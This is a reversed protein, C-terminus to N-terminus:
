PAADVDATLRVPLRALVRWGGYPSTGLEVSGGVLAARERMGVLGHGSPVDGRPGIGNDDVVVELADDSWRLLVDARQGRSHRAANTLAEQVIRYASLQVDVPVDLPDGEHLLTATIGRASSAALLAPLAALGPQPTRELSGDERLMGLLRRMSVLAASGNEAIEGLAQEAMPVDGRGSGLASRAAKAQLVIGSVHHAVIDHLDRAIRAREALVAERAEVGHLRELEANRAALAKATARNARMVGGVGVAYHVTLAPMVVTDAGLDQFALDSALSGLLAAAFSAIGVRVPSAHPPNALLSYTAFSLIILAAEALPLAAALVLAVSWTAWPARRRWMLVAVTLGGLVWPVWTDDPWVPNAATATAMFVIVAVPLSLLADRLVLPLSRWRTMWTAADPDVM